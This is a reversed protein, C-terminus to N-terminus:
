SVFEQIRIGDSPPDASARFYWCSVTGQRVNCVPLYTPLFGNEFDLIISFIRKNIGKISMKSRLFYAFRLKLSLFIGEQNCFQM